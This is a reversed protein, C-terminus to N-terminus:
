KVFKRSFLRLEEWQMHIEAAFALLELNVHWLFCFYYVSSITRHRSSIFKINSHCSYSITKAVFVYFKYRRALTYHKKRIYVVRYRRKSSKGFIESRKGFIESSERFSTRLDLSRERVNELVIRLNKVIGSSQRLWRPLGSSTEIMCWRIFSCNLTM